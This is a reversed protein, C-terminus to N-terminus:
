GLLLAAGELHSLVLLDWPQMGYLTNNATGQHSPPGQWHIWYELGESVPPPALLPEALLFSLGHFM